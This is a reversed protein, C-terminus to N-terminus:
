PAQPKTRMVSDHGAKVSHNVLRSGFWTFVGYKNCAFFAIFMLIVLGGVKLSKLFDAQEYSSQPKPM